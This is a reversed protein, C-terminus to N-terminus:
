LLKGVEKEPEGKHQICPQACRCDPESLMLYPKLRNNKPAAISLEDFVSDTTRLAMPCFVTGGSLNMSITEREFSVCPCASLSAFSIFRPIAFLYLFKKASLYHDAIGDLTTTSAFTNIEARMNVPIGELTNESFALCFPKSKMAGSNKSCSTRLCMAFAELSVFSERSSNSSAYRKRTPVIVNMGVSTNQGYMFSASSSEGSGSSTCYMASASENPHGIRVPSLFSSEMCIGLTTEGLSSCSRRAPLLREYYLSYMQRKLDRVGLNESIAYREFYRRKTENEIKILECYHSWALKPSVAEWKGYALYFRRIRRLNSSDFGKGFEANLKRSIEELLGEGYEAREKGKQEVEVLKEGIEFYARLMAANVAAYSSQRANQVIKKIEGIITPYHALEKSGMNESGFAAQM